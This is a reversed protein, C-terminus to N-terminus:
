QGRTFEGNIVRGERDLRLPCLPSLTTWRKCGRVLYPDPPTCSTLDRCPSRPIVLSVLFDQPLTAKNRRAILDAITPSPARYGFGLCSFM